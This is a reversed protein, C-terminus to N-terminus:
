HSVASKPSLRSKPSWTLSPVRVGSVKSIRFCFSTAKTHAKSADVMVLGQDETLALYRGTTVHRIRLPQGWRLHSGSWSHLTLALSDSPGGLGGICVMTKTWVEEFWLGEELTGWVQRM